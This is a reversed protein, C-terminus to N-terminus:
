VIKGAVYYKPHM